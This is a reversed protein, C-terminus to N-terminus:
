NLIRDTASEANLGKRIEDTIQQLVFPDRILQIHGRLIGAEKESAAQELEAAMTETDACFGELADNFRAVEQETDAPAATSIEKPTTIVVRVTGIGIGESAAIGKLIM